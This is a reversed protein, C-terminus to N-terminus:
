TFINGIAEWMRDFWTQGSDAVSVVDEDGIAIYHIQNSDALTMGNEQAYKNIQEPSTKGSLEAELRVHESHLTNLVANNDAITKNMETMRVNSTILYGIIAVAVLALALYVVVNFRAHRRARKRTDEAAKKNGELAVLKPERPRFLDLDYAENINAV